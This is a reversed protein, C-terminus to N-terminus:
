FYEVPVRKLYEALKDLSENWGQRCMDRERCPPIPSHLLALTTKGENETFTVHIIAEHPWDPGMGYQEPSVPNGKEDAFGDTLVILEPELIDRYVGRSWFEQGEPSRMCSHFVGGPRLNIRCVPCTFGRPGWWQMMRQPETWAKFVLRRPADFVRIIEIVQDTDAELITDLNSKNM